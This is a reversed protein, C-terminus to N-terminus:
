CEYCEDKMCNSGGIIDIRPMHELCFGQVHGYVIMIIMPDAGCICSIRKGDLLAVTNCEFTNFNSEYSLWLNYKYASKIVGSDCKLLSAILILPLLLKSVLNRRNVM